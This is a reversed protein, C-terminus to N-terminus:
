LRFTESFGRTFTALTARARAFLVKGEPTANVLHAAVFGMLVGVLVSAFRGM